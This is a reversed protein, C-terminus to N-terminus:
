DNHDKKVPLQIKITTGKNSSLWEITGGLLKTRHQMNMIGIGSTQKEADKFGKGDDTITVFFSANEEKLVIHINKAGSHKIANQLAEQVIRFLIIQADTQLPLYDDYLFSIQLVQSANIRKIETELNEIFNFQQLWEKNLSKSLSRMENIATGLTENAVALTDPPEKLKRQTIGILLKASNLLQGVNDHLEKSLQNLTEDQTEIRSQLLNNEFDQQMTKIEFFHTVQRKQYFIIFIIIFSVILILFVSLLFIIIPDETIYRM